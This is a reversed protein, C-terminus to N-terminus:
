YDSKIINGARGVLLRPQRGHPLRQAFHSSGRSFDQKLPNITRTGLQMFLVRDLRLQDYPFGCASDRNPVSNARLL